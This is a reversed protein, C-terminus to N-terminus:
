KPAKVRYLPLHRDEAALALVALATGFNRGFQTESGISQWSGETTQKALLLEYMALRYAKAEDGGVQTVAFSDQYFAVFRYSDMWNPKKGEKKLLFAVAERVVEDKKAEESCLTLGLIATGTCCMSMHGSIPQYQFGGTRPDRCRRIFAAARDFVEKPVECGAKQAARLAPIQWGTVSLDSDPSIPTYRWGGAHAPNVRRRKQTQIILLVAKELKKRIEKARAEDSLRTAEALMLTAIGHEYMSAHIESALLGNEKQHELVWRVGRTITAGHPGKDPKHGAALFALVAQSTGVQQYRRGKGLSWSGDEAQTKKLYALGKDIARTRPSIVEAAPVSGAALLVSLIVILLAKKMTMEEAALTGAVWLSL